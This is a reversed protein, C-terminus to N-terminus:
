QMVGTAPSNLLHYNPLLRRKGLGTAPAPLKPTNRCVAVSSTISTILPGDRLQSMMITTVAQCAAWLTTARIKLVPAVSCRLHCGSSDHQHFCGGRAAVLWAPHDRSSSLGPPQVYEARNLCFTPNPLQSPCPGLVAVAALHLQQQQHGPRAQSTAPNTPANSCPLVASSAHQVVCMTVDM